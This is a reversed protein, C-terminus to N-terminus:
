RFVLLWVKVISLPWLLQVLVRREGGYLFFVYFRFFLFGFSLLQCSFLGHMNEEMEGLM